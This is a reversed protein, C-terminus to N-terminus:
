LTVTLGYGKKIAMKNRGKHNGNNDARACGRNPPIEKSPSKVAGQPLSATFFAKTV